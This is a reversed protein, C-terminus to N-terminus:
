TRATCSSRSFAVSLLALHVFESKGHHKAFFRQTLTFVVPLGSIVWSGRYKRNGAIRRLSQSQHTTVSARACLLSGGTVIGMSVISSSATEFFFAAILQRISNTFTQNKNSLICGHLGEKWRKDPKSVEEGNERARVGLPWTGATRADDFVTESSMVKTLARMELYANHLRLWEICLRV